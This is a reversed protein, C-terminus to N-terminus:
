SIKREMKEESKVTLIEKKYEQIFGSTATLFDFHSKLLWKETSYIDADAYLKAHQVTNM